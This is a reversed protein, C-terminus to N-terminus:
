EDHVLNADLPTVERKVALGQSGPRGKPQLGELREARKCRSYSVYSVYYAHKSHPRKKIMCLPINQCRVWICM